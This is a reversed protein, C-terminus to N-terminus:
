LTKMVPRLSRNDPSIAIGRPRQGVPVTKILKGAIPDIVALANDKELTVFVSEARVTANLAMILFFVLYKNKM